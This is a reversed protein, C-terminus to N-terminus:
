QPVGVKYDRLRMPEPDPKRTTAAGTQFENREWTQVAARWDQMPARGGVRWGNSEYHSMFRQPDVQNKRETCYARVEELTPKAFRKKQTRVVTHNKRITRANPKLEIRPSGKDTSHVVKTRPKFQNVSQVLENRTGGEIHYQNSPNGIGCGPVVTIEDGKVLENIAKHITARALGTDAQLTSVSPHCNGSEDARNALALWVVVAPPSYNMMRALFGNRIHGVITNAPRDSV